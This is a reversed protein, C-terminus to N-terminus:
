KIFVWEFKKKKLKWKQLYKKTRVEDGIVGILKGRASALAM